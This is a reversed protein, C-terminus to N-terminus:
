GTNTVLLDLNDLNDPLNSTKTKLFGFVQHVICGFGNLFFDGPFFCLVDLVLQLFNPRGDLNFLFSNISFPVPGTGKEERHARSPPCIHGKKNKGWTGSTPGSNAQCQYLRTSTNYSAPIIYELLRDVSPFLPRLYLYKM